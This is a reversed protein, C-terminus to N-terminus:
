FNKSMKISDNEGNNDNYCRLSVRGHTEVRAHIGLRLTKSSANCTLRVANSLVASSLVVNSLVQQYFCWCPRFLLIINIILIIYKVNNVFYM